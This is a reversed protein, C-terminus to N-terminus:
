RIGYRGCIAIAKNLESVPADWAGQGAMRGQQYFEDAFKSNGKSAERDVRLVLRDATRAAADGAAAAGQNAHDNPSLYGPDFRRVSRGRFVSECSGMITGESTTDVFASVTAGSQQQPQKAPAAQATQQKNEVRKGDKYLGSYEVAGSASYDTGKGNRKGDKWEGVYKGSSITATGQGNFKGDKFEGVYAGGKANTSTGQGNFKGDKFEGVYKNGNAFTYTGQGSLNGDKFGGVYKEGNTATWTGQGHPQGDKFEGVNKDGKASTFTGKGTQKGDRFEGVYKGDKDIETGFCNTWTSRDAGACPPLKSQQAQATQQIPRECVFQRIRKEEPWTNSDTWKGRVSYDSWKGRVSYGSGFANLVEGTGMPGKYYDLFITGRLHSSCDVEVYHRSSNTSKNKGVPAVYDWLVWARRRTGSASISETDVYYSSEANTGVKVLEGRAAASIMLSIVIFLYKM